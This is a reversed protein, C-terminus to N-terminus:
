SSGAMWPLAIGRLAKIDVKAYIQTTVPQAHRLVQGIENLTAGKRLMNTALSHRFLHTGRFDPDLGARDLARNVLCGIANRRLGRLPAQLRVFLVRTSCAPRAHRLYNAVAQGVAKPLPLRDLRQGKGHVIVEGREWDLDDLTLARVEGARLGLRALLLLIAYNRKGADTSRDCSDLLQKIKESALSKPIDALRRNSISPLGAALDNQIIGHLQLFRLFWRLATTKRKVSRPSVHNAERLIFRHLDSLQLREPRLARGRFAQTLFRRVEPLYSIVTAQSVGREASLFREFGQILNGLASRDVRQPLPPICGLNRLRGLVQRLTLLDGPRIHVRRRRHTIFRRLQAEDVDVLAVKHRGLWCDLSKMLRYKYRVSLRAYGDKTLYASFEDIHPALPGNSFRKSHGPVVHKHNKVM